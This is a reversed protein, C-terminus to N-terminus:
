PHSRGHRRPFTADFRTGESATSRVSISGGHASMIREAIYLGLGLGGSGDRKSRARKFPDFLLGLFEPPIPTGHNHVCLRAHTDDCEAWVSIPRQPDGHAVANGLLNSAVQELRDTDFDAVVPGGDWQDIRLTPNTARVEDVIRAILPRLDREPGVTVPMGGPQRASATDLLQDVLRRMREGSRLIREVGHRAAEPLAQNEGLLRASALVTSLPGRLDHGVIALFLEKVAESAEARESERELRRARWQMAAIHRLCADRDDLPPFPEAPTVRAHYRCADLFMDGSRDATFSELSCACVVAMSHESCSTNWAEELRAAATPNGRRALLDTLESCVVTRRTPHTGEPGDRLTSVFSRFREADFVGDVVLTSLVSTADLLRLESPSFREAAVRGALARLRANMAIVVVRDGAALAAVILDTLSEVLRHDDEYFQAAHLSTAAGLPFTGSRHAAGRTASPASLRKTVTM